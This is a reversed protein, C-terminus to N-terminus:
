PRPARVTWFTTQKVTAEGLAVALQEAQKLADRQESIHPPYTYSNRSSRSITFDNWVLKEDAEGDEM